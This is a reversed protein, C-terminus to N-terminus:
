SKEQMWEIVELADARSPGEIYVGGTSYIIKLDTEVIPQNNDFEKHVVRVWFWCPPRNDRIALMCVIIHPFVTLSLNEPIVVNIPPADISVHTINNSAQAALTIKTDKPIVKHCPVDQYGFETEPDILYVLKIWERLEDYAAAYQKELVGLYLDSWAAAEIPDM